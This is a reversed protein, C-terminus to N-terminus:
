VKIVLKQGPKILNPNSGITKKNQNYIAKWNASNGTVKKAIGSLTDGKRVVYTTSKPEKGSRKPPDKTIKGDAKNKGTDGNKVKTSIRRNGKLEIEYNIDGTADNEGYVFSEIKCLINLPADTIVLRLEGKRQMTQVIKVCEKPSPFNTYDCFPYEQNPFFSSITTTKLNRIGTLNVEGLSNVVVSTNNSEAAVQYESPIIPLRFEVGAQKLWVEM